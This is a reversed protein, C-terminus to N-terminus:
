MYGIVINNNYSLGYRKGELEYDFYLDPLMDLYHVLSTTGSQPFGVIVLDLDMFSLAFDDARASSSRVQGANSCLFAVIRISSIIRILSIIRIWTQSFSVGM